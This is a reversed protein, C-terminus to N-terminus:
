AQGVQTFMVLPELGHIDEAFMRCKLVWCAWLLHLVSFALCNAALICQLGAMWAFINMGLLCDAVTSDFLSCAACDAAM